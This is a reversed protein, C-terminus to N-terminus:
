MWIDVNWGVGAIGGGDSPFPADFVPTSFTALNSGPRDSLSGTGISLPIADFLPRPRRPDNSAPNCPDVPAVRRATHFSNTIGLYRDLTISM